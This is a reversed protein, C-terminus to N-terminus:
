RDTRYGTAPFVCGPDFRTRPSAPTSVMDKLSVAVRSGATDCFDIIMHVDYLRERECIRMLGRIDEFTLARTQDNTWLADRTLYEGLTNQILYHPM